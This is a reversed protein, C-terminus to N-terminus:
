VSGYQIEGTKFVASTVKDGATYLYGYVYLQLLRSVTPVTSTHVVSIEDTKAMYVIVNDSQRYIRIETLETQVSFMTKVMTGNEYVRVGNQDCIISHMFRAVGAGEMGKNAISICASTVGSAATFKIFTGSALPDIARAWTNWGSNTLQLIEQYTLPENVSTTPEQAPMTTEVTYTVTPVSTPDILSTGDNYTGSEGLPVVPQNYGDAMTIDFIEGWSEGDPLEQYIWKSRDEQLITDKLADYTDQNFNTSDESLTQTPKANEYEVFHYLGYGVFGVWFALYSDDPYSYKSVGLESKGQYWVINHHNVRAQMDTATGDWDNPYLTRMMDNEQATTALYIGKKGTRVGDPPADGIFGDPYFIGKSTMTYGSVLSGTEDIWQDNDLQTWGDPIYYYSMTSQESTGTTTSTYGETGATSGYRTVLEYKYDKILTSM